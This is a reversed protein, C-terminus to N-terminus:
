KGRNPQKEILPPKRDLWFVSFFFSSSVVFLVLCTLANVSNKNVRIISGHHFPWKPLTCIIHGSPETELSWPHRVEVIRCRKAGFGQRHGRVRSEYGSSSNFRSPIDIHMLSENIVLMIFFQLPWGPYVTTCLLLLLSLVYEWYEWELNSSQTSRGFFLLLNSRITMRFFMNLWFSNSTDLFEKHKWIESLAKDM